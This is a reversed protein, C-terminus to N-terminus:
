IWYIKYNLSFEFIYKYLWVPKFVKRLHEVFFKWGEIPHNRRFAIFQQLANDRLLPLVALLAEMSSYNGIDLYGQIVLVWEELNEGVNAGFKPLNLDLVKFQKYNGQDSEQRSTSPKEVKLETAKKDVMRKSLDQMISILENKGGNPKEVFTDITEDFAEKSVVKGDLIYGCMGAQSKIVSSLQEKTYSSLFKVPVELSIKKDTM